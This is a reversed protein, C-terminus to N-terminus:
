VLFLCEDRNLVRRQYAPNEGLIHPVQSRYHAVAQAKDNLDPRIRLVQLTQGTLQSLETAIAEDGQQWAYPIDAYFGLRLPQQRLSAWLRDRVWEHESHAPAGFPQRLLRRLWRRSTPEPQHGGSAAPLLCLTTSGAGAVADLVAETARGANAAHLEGVGLGAHQMACGLFRIAQLDERRRAAYEAPPTEFGALRSWSPDSQPSAETFLTLVLAQAAAARLLAATSLVADDLHPSVVVIREIRHRQMWAQVHQAGQLVGGTGAM